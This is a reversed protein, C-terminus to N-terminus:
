QKGETNEMGGNRNAEWLTKELHSNDLIEIQVLPTEPTPEVIENNTEMITKYNTANGTVSGYWVGLTALQTPSLKSIDIGIEKYNDFIAGKTIKIDSSNLLWEMAKKLTAKEKRTKGSATGGKKAIERKEETTRDALSVLNQENAM